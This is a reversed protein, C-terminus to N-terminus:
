AVSGSKVATTTTGKIKPSQMAGTFTNLASTIASVDEARYNELVLTAHELPLALPLMIMSRIDAKFNNQTIYCTAHLSKLTRKLNMLSSFSTIQVSYELM